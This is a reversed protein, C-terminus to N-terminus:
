RRVNKLDAEFAQRYVSVFLGDVLVVSCVLLVAIVYRGSIVKRLVRVIEDDGTSLVVNARFSVIQCAEEWLITEIKRTDSFFWVEKLGARKKGEHFVPVGVHAKREEASARGYSLSSSSEDGGSM